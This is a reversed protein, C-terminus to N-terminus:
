RAGGADAAVDMALLLRPATADLDAFLWCAEAASAAPGLARSTTDEAGRRSFGNAGGGDAIAVFLLAGALAGGLAAGCSWRDALDGVRRWWPRSVAPSPRAAAAVVRRVFLPDRAARPMAAFTERLLDDLPDHPATM